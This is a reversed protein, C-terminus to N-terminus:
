ANCMSEPSYTHLHPDLPSMPDVRANDDNLHDVAHSSHHHHSHHHHTDRSHSSQQQTSHHHKNSSHGRSSISSSRSPPSTIEMLNINNNGNNTTNAHSGNSTTNTKNSKSANNAATTTSTVTPHISATATTVATANVTTAASSVPVNNANTLQSTLSTLNVPTGRVLTWIFRGDSGGSSVVTYGINELADLVKIPPARLKYNGRTYINGAMKEDLVTRLHEVVEEIETTVYTNNGVAFNYNSGSSLLVYGM